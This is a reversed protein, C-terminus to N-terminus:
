AQETESTGTEPAPEEVPSEASSEPQPEETVEPESVEPYVEYLGEPMHTFDFPGAANETTAVLIPKEPRHEATITAGSIGAVAPVGGPYGCNDVLISHGTLNFGNNSALYDAAKGNATLKGGTITLTGAKIVINAGGVLEGGEIVIESTKQPNFITTNNPTGDEEAAVAELKGSKVVIKTDSRLGNGAIAAYHGKVTVGDIIVTAYDGPENEGKTTLKIACYLEAGRKTADITGKGKLTLTSGKKVLFLCDLERAARATPASSDKATVDAPASITVGEPITVEVNTGTEIVFAVNGDKQNEIQDAIAKGLTVHKVGKSDATAKGLAETFAAAASQEPYTPVVPTSSSFGVGRRLMQWLAANRSRNMEDFINM